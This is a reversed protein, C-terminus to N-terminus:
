HVRSKGQSHRARGSGGLAAPRARLRRLLWARASGLAAHQGKAPFGYGQLEWNGPVQIRDWSSDDFGPQTHEARLGELVTPAWRFRWAGNLSLYRESVERGLGLAVERSECGFLAAHAPEKGIAFCTPDEWERYPSEPEPAPAAAPECPLWTLAAPRSIAGIRKDEETM